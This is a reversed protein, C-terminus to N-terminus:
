LALTLCGASGGAKLFESLDVQHVVFGRAALAERLAPSARNLILHRDVVVCNCAFALADEEGIEIQAATHGRVAQRSYDQLAPPYYMVVEDDLPCFCTDLHYFRRDALELSVVLKGLREGIMLHAQIDSRFYFGAFILDQYFKLDGMGEFVYERPLREVRYGHAAFWADYHKEEGQREPYRFNTAIFLDGAVVGANATFVMDPQGEVPDLLEVQVGLEQYLDYLAQWQQRALEQQPQNAVSMWPNIEYFVGYYDPPCM